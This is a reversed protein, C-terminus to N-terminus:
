NERKYKLMVAGAGCEQLRDSLLHSLDSQRVIAGHRRGQAMGLLGHTHTHTHTHTHAHTHTYPTPPQLSQEVALDISYKCLAQIQNGTGM